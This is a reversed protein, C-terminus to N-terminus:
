YEAAPNGQAARQLIAEYEATAATAATTQLLLLLGSLGIAIKRTQINM